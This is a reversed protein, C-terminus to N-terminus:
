SSPEGEGSRAVANRLIEEARLLHSEGRAIGEECERIRNEIARDREPDGTNRRLYTNRRRLLFLIVTFLVVTLVAGVISFVSKFKEWM